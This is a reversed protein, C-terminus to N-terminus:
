GPNPVPVFGALLGERACVDQAPFVQGSFERARAGTALWAVAAGIADPPAGDSAAYGFRAMDQAIRETAVYGPEVNVSSIGLAFLEAHLVGAVRHLAGKSIAYGLGWGGEGAPAKPEMWAVGSTVNAILGDGREIMQPALLRVLVLPAMVNADLHKDLVDLPTDLFRDMHGPGIYRANNVLVDVRGWRELVTTAAAGLSARDLLDGPVVLAERGAARILAATADLSGPLPSMDSQAVTSSHERAEGEHVTRALIAVDYGARALHVAIAKGIGRSAGTVFAVQTSM